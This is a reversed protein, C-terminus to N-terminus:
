RQMVQSYMSSNVIPTIVCSSSVFRCIMEIVGYMQVTLAPIWKQNAYLTMIQACWNM